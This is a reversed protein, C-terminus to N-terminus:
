FHVRVINMSFIFDNLMDYEWELLAYNRGITFIAIIGLYIGILLFNSCYYRKGNKKILTFMIGIEYHSVLLIGFIVAPNCYLSRLLHGQLLAFLARTGGCGPCYLHFLDHIMCPMVPIINWRQLLLSIFIFFCVTGIIGNIIIYDKKLINYAIPQNKKM